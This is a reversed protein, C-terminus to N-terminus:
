KASQLYKLFADQLDGVEESSIGASAIKRSLAICSSPAPRGELVSQSSTKAKTRLDAVSLASGNAAMVM